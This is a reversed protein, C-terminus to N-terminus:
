QVTYYQILMKKEIQASKYKAQLYTHLINSAFKIAPICFTYTNYIYTYDTYM